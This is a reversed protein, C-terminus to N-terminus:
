ASDCRHELHTQVLSLDFGHCGDIQDGAQDGVFESTTAVAQQFPPALLGLKAIRLFGDIVEVEGEIGFHIATQNEIQRGSGEDGTV